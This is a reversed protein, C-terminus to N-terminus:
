VAQLEGSDASGSGYSYDNFMAVLGMISAIAPVIFYAWM